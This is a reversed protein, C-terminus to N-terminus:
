KDENTKRVLELTNRSADPDIFQLNDEKWLQFMLEDSYKTSEWFPYVSCFGRGRSAIMYESNEGADRYVAEAIDTVWYPKEWRGCSFDYTVWCVIRHGEDLLQKLRPYDKSVKYSM